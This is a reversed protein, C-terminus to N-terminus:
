LILIGGTRLRAGELGCRNYRKRHFNASMACVRFDMQLWRELGGRHTIAHLSPCGAPTVQFGVVEGRRPDRSESNHQLQFLASRYATAFFTRSVM